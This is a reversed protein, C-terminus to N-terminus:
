GMKQKRTWASRLIKRFLASRGLTLVTRKVFTTNYKLARDIEDPEGMIAIQIYM